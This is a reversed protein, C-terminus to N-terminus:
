IAAELRKSSYFPTVSSLGSHSFSECSEDIVGSDFSNFSLRRISSLNLAQQPTNPSTNVISNSTNGEIESLGSDRERPGDSRSILSHKDLEGDIRVAEM